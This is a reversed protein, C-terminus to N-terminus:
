NTRVKIGANFMTVATVTRLIANTAPKKSM